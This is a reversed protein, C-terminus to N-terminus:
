GCSALWAQQYAAELDRTFGTTDCIPSRAMQSRLRGRLNALEQLNSSWGAAKDLYGERTDAIWDSLGLQTLYNEGHRIFPPRNGRLLLTPVGMWAAELITVGGQYPLPDLAIDIHRYDDLMEIRPSGGALILREAAVGQEVFKKLCNNRVAADDFARAKLYLRANPLAQLLEGWLEVTSISLKHVTFFCGFTINNHNKAPLLAPLPAEEPPIFCAYGRHLRLPKESYFLAEDDPLSVQDAIVYDISTLGTSSPYGGWTLQVPALRRACLDLWNDGTHGSLEVLLDLQLTRILKIASERNTPDIVIWHDVSRKLGATLDDREAFPSLVFVEFSSHDHNPIVGQMLYGMPHNYLDSSLYGIRLRREETQQKIWGPRGPSQGTELLQGVARHFAAVQQAGLNALQSGATVVRRFLTPAGSWRDLEEVVIYPPLNSVMLLAYLFNGTTRRDDPASEFVIRYYILAREPEGAFILANAFAALLVMNEPAHILAEHLVTVAQCCRRESALSRAYGIAGNAYDPASEFLLRYQNSADLLQNTKELMVAYNYRVELEDPLHELLEKFMGLAQRSDNSRTADVALAFAEEYLGKQLLISFYTVGHRNLVGGSRVLTAM